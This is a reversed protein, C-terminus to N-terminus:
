APQAAIPRATVDRAARQDCAGGAARRARHRPHVRQRGPERLPRRRRLAGALFRERQPPSCTPRSAHAGGGSAPLADRVSLGHGGGRRRLDGRFGDSFRTPGGPALEVPGVRVDVRGEARLRAFGWDTPPLTPLHACYGRALWPPLRELPGIYHHVDRGLFTAPTLRVKRRAAVTVRVGASAAEEAIEIASAGGGIVLLGGGSAVLDAPGRWDRAHLVPVDCRDLGPIEPWRPSSWMGTAVVVARAHLERGDQLRAVLEGGGRVIAAVDGATVELGAHEAYRALYARYQPVRVYTNPCDLPLGPLSDLTAPSALTIGDHLSRYAGGPAGSRDLLVFPVGARRLCAATALGAPGAGIVLCSM